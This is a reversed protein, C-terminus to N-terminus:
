GFGWFVSLEPSSSASTVSLECFSSCLYFLRQACLRATRRLSGASASTTHQTHVGWSRVPTGWPAAPHAASHLGRARRGAPHWTHRRCLCSCFQWSLAGPSCGRPGPFPSSPRCPAYNQAHRQKPTPWFSWKTKKQLIFFVNKVKVLLKISKSIKVIQALERM